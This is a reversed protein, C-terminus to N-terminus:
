QCSLVEKFRHAAFAGLREDQEATGGSVGFGGVIKEGSFLPEGGGFIVIRGGNTFQIGYLSGGPRALEGLAKTPMKLSVSTWAKNVAIDVSAAFAGDMRRLCIANGGADCVATVVAIGMGAAEREVERCLRDALELSPSCGKCPAHVRPAPAEPSAPKQGTLRRVIQEVADAIQAEDM